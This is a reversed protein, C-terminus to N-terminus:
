ELIMTGYFPFSQGTVFCIPPNSGDTAFLVQNPTAVFTLDVGSNGFFSTSAGASISMVGSGDANVEYVGGTIPIVTEGYALGDYNFSITGGTILGAGNFTLTGTGVVHYGAAQTLDGGSFNLAYTGKVISGLKASVGVPINGSAPSPCAAGVAANAVRVGAIAAIGLFALGLGLLAVRGAFKILSKRSM